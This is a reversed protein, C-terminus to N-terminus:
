HYDELSVVVVTNQQKSGSAKEIEVVVRWQRNARLSWQHKRDGQLKEFNLGRLARLDREDTAALIARLAKRYGAVAEPPYGGNFGDETALRRLDANAFRIEM